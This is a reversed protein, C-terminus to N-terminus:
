NSCVSLVNHHFLCPTPKPLFIGDRKRHQALNAHLADHRCQVIHGVTFNPGFLSDAIQLRVNFRVTQAPRDHLTQRHTFGDLICSRLAFLQDLVVLHTKGVQPTAPYFGDAVVKHRHNVPHARVQLMWPGVPGTREIIVADTESIKIRLYQCPRPCLCVIRFLLQAPHRLKVPGDRFRFLVLQDVGDDHLRLAKDVPVDTLPVLIRDGDEAPQQCLILTDVTSRQALVHAIEQCGDHGHALLIPHVHAHMGIVRRELYETKRTDHGVFLVDAPEQLRHVIRMVPQRETGTRQTCPCVIVGTLQRTLKCPPRMEHMQAARFGHGAAIEDLTSVQASTPM